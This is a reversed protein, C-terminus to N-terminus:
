LSGMYLVMSERGTLVQYHPKDKMPFLILGRNKIYMQIPALIQHPEWQMYIFAATGLSTLGYGLAKRLPTMNSIAFGAPPKM